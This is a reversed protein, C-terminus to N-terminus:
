HVGGVPVAFHMVLGAMEETLREQEKMNEEVEKEMLNMVEMSLWPDKEQINYLEIIRANLISMRDSIDKARGFTSYNM